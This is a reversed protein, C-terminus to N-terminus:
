QRYYGMAKGRPPPPVLDRASANICCLLLQFSPWVSQNSSASKTQRPNPYLSTFRHRSPNLTVQPKDMNFFAKLESSGSVPSPSSCMIKRMLSKEHANDKELYLLLVAVQSPKSNSEDM